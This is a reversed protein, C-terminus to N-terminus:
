IIQSLVLLLENSAIVTKRFLEMFVCINEISVFIM